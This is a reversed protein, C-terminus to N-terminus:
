TPVVAPAESSGPWLASGACAATGPEDAGTSPCDCYDDNVREAPIVLVSGDVQLCDVPSMATALPAALVLSGVLFLRRLGYRVTM